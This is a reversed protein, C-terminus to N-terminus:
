NHRRQKALDHFGGSRQRVAELDGELVQKAGGYRFIIGVLRRVEALPKPAQVHQLAVLLTQFFTHGAEQARRGARGVADVNFGRFVGGVVADARPLSVGGNVVNIVVAADEAAIAHLGAGGVGDRVAVAKFQGAVVGGAKNIAFFLKENRGRNGGALLGFPYEM